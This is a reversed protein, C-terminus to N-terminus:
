LFQRAIKNHNKDGIGLKTIKYYRKPKGKTGTRAGTHGM